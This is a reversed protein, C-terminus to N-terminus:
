FPALNTEAILACVDTVPILAEYSVIVSLRVKTFLLELGFAECLMLNVVTPAPSPLPKAAVVTVVAQLYWYSGVAAVLTAPLSLVNVM